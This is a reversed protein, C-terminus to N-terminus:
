RWFRTRWKWKIRIVLYIGAIAAVILPMGSTLINAAFIAMRATIENFNAVIYVAAIVSIASLIIVTLQVASMAKIGTGRYTEQEFINNRHRM